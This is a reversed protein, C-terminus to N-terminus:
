KYYVVVKYPVYGKSIKITKGWYKSLKYSKVVKKSNHKFWVKSKIFKHYTLGLDYGQGEIHLHRKGSCQGWYQTHYAIQISEGKGIRKYQFYQGSKLNKVKSFTVHKTKAASVSGLCMGVCFITLVM